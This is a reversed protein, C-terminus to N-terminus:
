LRNEAFGGAQPSGGLQFRRVRNVGGRSRRGAGNQEDGVVGIEAPVHTHREHNQSVQKRRSPGRPADADRGDNNPDGEREPLTATNASLGRGPQCGSLSATALSGASM